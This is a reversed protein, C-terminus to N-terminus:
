RVQPAPPLRRLAAIVAEPLPAADAKQGDSLADLFSQVDKELIGITNAPSYEERSWAIERFRSGYWSQGSSSDMVALLAEPAIGLEASVALVRRVAAVTTAAVFNNLVKASMGAGLGGLRHLHRGMAEFLPLHAAIAGEDGGLMFSLAADEAAKPAGSMPADILAVNAPLRRRLDHLFPPAITSSVILCAPHGARTFLAQDGFCLAEIQPIDRVVCILTDCWAGFRAPDAIMRGAFDGFEEAPRIDFGRVDFGARLLARAMPLGMAGCGAIGVHLGDERGPPATM